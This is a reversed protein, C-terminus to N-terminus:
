YYRKKNNIRNKLKNLNEEKKKSFNAERKLKVYSKWREQSVQGSELAAKVACGPEREHKCDRFRCNRAISEIEAFTNEIGETVDWLELERMGPTDIIMTGNKMMLLQRHTTTHRGKSDNERIASVKMIEENAIINVLSSKGVGSSGVFVVTDGKCIYKKLEELGLGLLSSVAIVPVGIAVKEVMAKFRNYDSCLDAKTLVVIPQAGSQWATALYRELRKINFDYNLSTLIFLYQFNTAVIQEMKTVSNSNYSDLRSFKSKRDLVHYIVDDGCPNYKILVFDGIAPYIVKKNDKYFISGKLRANKYGNESVVKFQDKQVEIIRAPILENNNINDIQNKFFEDYGYSELNIKM